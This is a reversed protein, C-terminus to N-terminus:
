TLARYAAVIDTLDQAAVGHLIVAIRASNANGPRGRSRRV